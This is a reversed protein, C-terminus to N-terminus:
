LLMRECYLRMHKLQRVMIQLSGSILYGNKMNMEIKPFLKEMDDDKIDMAKQMDYRISDYTQVCSRLNAEVSPAVIPKDAFPHEGFMSVKPSIEVLHTDIRHCISQLAPRKRSKEIDDILKHSKKMEAVAYSRQAEAEMKEKEELRKEKTKSKDEAESM